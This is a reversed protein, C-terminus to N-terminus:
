GVLVALWDAVDDIVHHVYDKESGEIGWASDTRVWVTTMGLAAEIADRVAGTTEPSVSDRNKWAADITKELTDSTM